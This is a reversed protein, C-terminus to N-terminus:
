NVLTWQVAMMVEKKGNYSGVVVQSVSCGLWVTLEAGATFVTVAGAKVQGCAFTASPVVAGLAGVAGGRRLTQIGVDTWLPEVAQLSARHRLRTGRARVVWRHSPLIDALTRSTRAAPVARVVIRCGRSRETLRTFCQESQIDSTTSNTSQQHFQSLNTNSVTILQQSPAHYHHYM